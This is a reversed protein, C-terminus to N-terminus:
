SWGTMLPILSVASGRTLMAVVEAREGHTERAIQWVLTQPLYQAGCALFREILPRGAAYDRGLADISQLPSTAADRYIQGGPAHSEDAVIVSLGRERAECAAAMGAPGAGVILLDCRTDTM